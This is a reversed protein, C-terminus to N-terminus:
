RLLKTVRALFEEENFPKRLYEDFGAAFGKRTIDSESSASLLMTPLGSFRADAKIKKVLSVGDMDPMYYDSIILDTKASDLAELALVGSQATRVTYGNTTLLHKIIHIEMPSDDVVLIVAKNLNKLDGIM